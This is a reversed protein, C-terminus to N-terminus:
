RGAADAGAPWLLWMRGDQRMGGPRAARGRRRLGLLLRRAGRRPDRRRHGAGDDLRELRRDSLPWTTALFVPAGLPIARADVAIARSPWCRCASRDTPDTSRRRRAHGTRAAASRPLVRLEPERRAAGRAQGPQAAGWARISQMSATDRTLEGRDILVRGISRYPHGNQDAYGVRMSAATRCRSAARARSRCSRRTSRIPSGPSRRRASRAPAASSTPARGTRCSASARRRARARPPGQARSAALRPRRDAPRGAGRYIPVGHASAHARPQRRLLPEYYGTVLGPRADTPSRSRGPRLSAVRLVRAGRARDRSDIPARPTAPRPGCRARRKASSCRRAPRSGPRGPRM